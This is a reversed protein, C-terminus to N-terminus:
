PGEAAAEESSRLDALEAEVRRVEDRLEALRTGLEEAATERDFRRYRRSRLRM